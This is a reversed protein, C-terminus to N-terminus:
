EDTEGRLAARLNGRPGFGADDDTTAVSSTRSQTLAM